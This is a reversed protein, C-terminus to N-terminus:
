LFCHGSDCTQEEESDYDDLMENYQLPKGNMMLARGKKDCSEMHIIQRFREPNDHRLAMIESKKRFPCYDCGSKQPSPWGYEEIIRHCDARSIRDDILPYVKHQYQPKDVFAGSGLRHSEDISIGIHVQAPNRKRAGLERLKKNIPFIKFERTCWRTAM